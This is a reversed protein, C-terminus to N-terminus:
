EATPKFILQSFNYLAKKWHQFDDAYEDVHWIHPVSKEKLYGHFGQSVRLLGDKNGCSLWLLKLQKKAKDPDPILMLKGGNGLIQVQRLQPAVLVAVATVVLSCVLRLPNSNM